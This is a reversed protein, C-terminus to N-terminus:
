LKRWVGSVRALVKGRGRWLGEDDFAGCIGVFAWRSDDQPPSQTITKLGEPLRGDSGDHDWQRWTLVPLSKDVMAGQMSPPSEYFTLSAIRGDGPCYQVDIRAIGIATGPSSDSAPGSSGPNIDATRYDKEDDQVHGGFHDTCGDSKTKIKEKPLSNYMWTFGLAGIGSDSAKGYRSWNWGHRRYAHISIRKVRNVPGTTLRRPDSVELTSFTKYKRHPHPVDGILHFYLDDGHAHQMTLIVAADDSLTEDTADNGSFVPLRQELLEPVPYNPKNIRIRLNVDDFEAYALHPHNVLRAAEETILTMAARCLLDAKKMTAVDVPLPGKADDVKALEWGAPNDPDMLGFTSGRQIMINKTQITVRKQDIPTIGVVAPEATLAVETRPTINLQVEPLEGAETGTRPKYRTPHTM